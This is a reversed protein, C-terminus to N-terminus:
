IIESVVFTSGGIFIFDEKKAQKKATTVAKKVEKYSKGKLQLKLAEKKLEKSCLARSNKPETFYYTADKPFHKLLRDIEKERVFGLVIHTRKEKAIKKIQEVVVKIAQENHAVDCIILPNKNLIQWRGVIGTNLVVNKLGMEIQRRSIQLGKGKLQKVAAVVTNVNKEQNKGLLSTKFSTEKSFFLMSNNRTCIQKFIHLTEQQKEGIIVPTDLKIIGAKEKAISAITKGLFHTHDFSITTIISLIPSIINTSDLRGGLGTEIVAVDVKKKAFFDFCLGVTMEFFSLKNKKFFLQHEKIFEQVYKKSIKKGNIRIRERFDKFHPSTYLGTKYGAEQLVSSLLHATSGKGNTGAIHISKFKKHPFGLHQDLKLSNSLNAKYAAAGVRQYMPLQNFLWKISQKYNM